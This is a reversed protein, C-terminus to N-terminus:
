LGSPSTDVPQSEPATNRFRTRGSEVREPAEDDDLVARGVRLILARAQKDTTTDKLVTSMARLHDPSTLIKGAKRTLLVAAATAIPNTLGAAGLAFGGMISKLGGLTFRRQLFLATNPVTFDAAVAATDLFRNIEGLSVSSGKLIESLVEDGGIAEKFSVPDFRAGRNGTAKVSGKYAEDLVGRSAERFSRPGVIKRLDGLAQPSKTNVVARFAEDANLSGAKFAGPGFVSRDVRGFRRATSTEFPKMAEHFFSNARKLANSVARGEEPSVRSFDPSNLSKEIGAKLARGRKIDFGDAAAKGMAETLDQQMERLQGATLTDPLDALDDIYAQLPDAVPRPLVKGSQLTVTNLRADSAMGTAIDRIGLAADGDPVSSPFVSPDPLAEAKRFFDDYLSGAVRKFKGFRSIAQDTLDAGLRTATTATPALDNLIQTFRNDVAAQAAQEAKLFPRNIFPFVGLVQSISKVPGFRSAQIAGIPIGQGGAQRAIEAADQGLGLVRGAGRAGARFVPGVAGAIATAAGEGSLDGIASKFQTVPGIDRPPENRLERVAADAFDFVQGAGAAGLAAAGVGIAPNGTAVASPVGAATAGLAETAPRNVFGGTLGPLGPTPPGQEVAAQLEPGLRPQPLAAASASRLSNVIAAQEQPTPIDGAIEVEGLGEVFIAGM